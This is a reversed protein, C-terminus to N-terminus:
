NALAQLQSAEMNNLVFLLVMTRTYAQEPLFERSTTPPHLNKIIELILWMM